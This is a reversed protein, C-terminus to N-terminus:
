KVLKRNRLHRKVNVYIVMVTVIYCIITIVKFVIKMQIVEKVIKVVMPVFCMLKYM